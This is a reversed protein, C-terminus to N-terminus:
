AQATYAIRFYGELGALRAAEELDADWSVPFPDRRDGNVSIVQLEDPGVKLLGETGQVVFHDPGTNSGQDVQLLAQGRGDFEVLLACCDEIPM